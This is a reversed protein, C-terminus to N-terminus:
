VILSTNIKGHMIFTIQNYYESSVFAFFKLFVKENVISFKVSSYCKQIICRRDLVEELSLLKFFNIGFSWFAFIVTFNSQNALCLTVAFGTLKELM